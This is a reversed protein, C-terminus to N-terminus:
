PVNWGLVASHVSNALSCKRESLKWFKKMKPINGEIIDKFIDETVDKKETETIEVRQM